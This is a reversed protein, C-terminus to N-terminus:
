RRRAGEISGKAVPFKAELRNLGDDTFGDGVVDLYLLAPFAPFVDIADDGLSPDLAIGLHQLSPFAPM